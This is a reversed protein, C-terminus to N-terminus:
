RTVRIRPLPKNRSDEKNFFYITNLTQCKPCMFMLSQNKFNIECIGEVETSITKEQCKECVFVVKIM